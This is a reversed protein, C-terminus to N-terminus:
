LVRRVLAVVREEVGLGVLSRDLLRGTGGPAPGLLRLHDLRELPDLDFRERAPSAPALVVDLHAVEILADGRVLVAVVEDGDARDLDHRRLLRHLRGPCLQEVPDAAPLDLRVARTTLTRALPTKWALMRNRTAAPSCTTKPT